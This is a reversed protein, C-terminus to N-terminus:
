LADVSEIDFDSWATAGGRTTPVTFWVRKGQEVPEVGWEQAVRDVLQLGRGTAADLGFHRLRPPVPSGDAVEVRLNGDDYLVRVDLPSSAHLVANSVLESVLLVVPDELGELGWGDLTTAVFRRAQGASRPDADFRASAERTM